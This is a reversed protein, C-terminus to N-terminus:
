CADGHMEQKIESQTTTLEALAGKDPPNGHRRRNRRMLFWVMGVVAVITFVGGARVFNLISATYKGTEPDYHCCYLLIQDTPSGIKEASAEVLGLRLDVPSYTIGYFYRSIKGEPTLIIIGSTHIYQDQKADYIYRFGVAKTLKEIADEKGTLFHWGAAAGSRGYSKVYTKKKAAALDPTERPDFSITVVNFEKGITYPIARMSQTLGNLVLTCLMPCRYYALVLVVPKQGLYDGLKVTKGTDDAFELDLPVQENLRQDFGVKKMLAPPQVQAIGTSNVCAILLFFLILKYELAIRM